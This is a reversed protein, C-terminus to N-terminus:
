LSPKSVERRVLILTSDQSVPRCRYCTCVDAKLGSTRCYIPTKM